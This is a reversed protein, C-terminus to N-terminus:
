GCIARIANWEAPSMAPGGRGAAARGLAAREASAPHTRFHALVGLAEEIVKEMEAFREFALAFGATDIGAGRLLAIGSEDAEREADRTYAAGLLEGVVGATVSVGVVEGVLLGLVIGTASRRVAVATPHRHIAHGLEHALVGALEDGDGLKDVLGKALVLRTGPLAFANVVKTNVVLLRPAPDIRGAPLLRTVLRDLAARGEAGECFRAGPDRQLAAALGDAYADGLRAEFTTPLLAAIRDSLLPIVVFILALVSALAGVGALWALRVLRRDTYAGRGLAPVRRELEALLAPDRFSLREPRGPGPAVRGPLEGKPRDILRLDVLRWRAREDGRSDMAVLWGPELRVDVALSAAAHGDSLLAVFPGDCRESTSPM